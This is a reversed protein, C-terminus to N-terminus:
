RSGGRPRPGSVLWEFLRLTASKAPRLSRLYDVLSWTQEESVSDQYSPMATGNLGTRVTRFIDEDTEGSRFVGRTFDTPRAERGSTDRLDAAAAGDGRGEPGHCTECGLDTYLTHGEAESEATRPPRPATPLGVIEGPTDRAFRPSLSKLSGVLARRESEELYNEWAPMVTGPVGKSITRFLDDDTPLSGTATTRFKYVGRTFDAPPPDLAPAAPGRGDGVEGHCPSCLHRFLRAGDAAVSDRSIAENGTRVTRVAEELAQLRESQAQLQEKQAAIQSRQREIERQLADVSDACVPGALALGAAVNAWCIFRRVWCKQRWRDKVRAPRPFKIPQDVLHMARRCAGEARGEVLEPPASPTALSM